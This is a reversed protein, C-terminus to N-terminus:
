AATGAAMPAAPLVLVLIQDPRQLIEVRLPRKGGEGRRAGFLDGVRQLDLIGRGVAAARRAVRWQAFDRFRQASFREFDALADGAFATMARRFAPQPRVRAGVPGMGVAPKRSHAVQLIEVDAGVDADRAMLGHGRRQEFGAVRFQDKFQVSLADRLGFMPAFALIPAARLRPQHSLGHGQTFQAPLQRAFCRRVFFQDRTPGRQQPEQLLEACEVM